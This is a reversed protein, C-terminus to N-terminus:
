PKYLILCNKERLYMSGQDKVIINKKTKNQKKKSAVGSVLHQTIGEAEAM